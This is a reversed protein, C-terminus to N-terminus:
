LLNKKPFVCKLYKQINFYSLSSAEPSGKELKLLALLADDPIIKRKDSPNQLNNNKIYAYVFRTVDIRSHKSETEWGAFQNMEDSVDVTKSLTSTRTTSKGSSGRKNKKSLLRQADKKVVRLKSRIGQLTRVGPSKKEEIFDTLQEIVEVLLLDINEPTAVRRPKRTKPTPPAPTGQITKPTTIALESM